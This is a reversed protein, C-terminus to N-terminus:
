YIIFMKLDFRGDRILKEKGNEDVLDINFTGAVIREDLDLKTIELVNMGGEKIGFRQGYSETVWEEGTNEFAYQGESFLGEYVFLRFEFDLNSNELFLYGIKANYVISQEKRATYTKSGMYCAFIGRGKETATPLWKEGSVLKVKRCSTAVLSIFFIFLLTRM